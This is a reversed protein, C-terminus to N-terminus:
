APNCCLAKIAVALLTSDRFNMKHFITRASNRDNTVKIKRVSLRWKINNVHKDGCSLFSNLIKIIGGPETVSVMSNAVLIGVKKDINGSEREDVVGITLSSHRGFKGPKMVDSSVSKNYLLVVKGNTDSINYKDYIRMAEDAHKNDMNKLIVEKAISRIAEIYRRDKAAKNDILKRLSRCVIDIMMSFIYFEDKKDSLVYNESMDKYYKNETAINGKELDSSILGIEMENDIFYVLHNVRNFRSIRLNLERYCEIKLQASANIDCLKYRFTNETDGSCYEEIINKTEPSINYCQKNVRNHHGDILKSVVDSINLWFREIIINDADVEKSAKVRTLVETVHGLEAFYKIKHEDLMTKLVNQLDVVPGISSRDEENTEYTVVKASGVGEVDWGTSSPTYKTYIFADTHIKSCASDGPKDQSKNSEKSKEM